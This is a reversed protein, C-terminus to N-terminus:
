GNIKTVRLRTFPQRHGQKRRYNKRKKFKFVVTKPARGQEVIETEVTASKVTPTGIEVKSGEGVMLVRDFVLKDGADGELKEVAFVDGDQVRYQKSGTSIVAHM